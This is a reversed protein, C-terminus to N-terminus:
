RKAGKRQTCTTLNTFTSTLCTISLSQCFLRLSSFCPYSPFVKRRLAIPIRHMPCMDATTGRAMDEKRFCKSRCRIRGLLRNESLILSYTRPSPKPCYCHIRGLLRNRVMILHQTKLIIIFHSKGKHSLVPNLSALKRSASHRRCMHLVASRASQRAKADFTNQSM